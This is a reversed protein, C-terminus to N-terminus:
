IETWSGPESFDRFAKQIGFASKILSSLLIEAGLAGNSIHPGSM